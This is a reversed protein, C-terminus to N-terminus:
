EETLNLIGRSHPIHNNYQGSLLTFNVKDWQNFRFRVIPYQPILTNDLLYPGFNYKEFFPDVKSINLTLQATGASLDRDTTECVSSM